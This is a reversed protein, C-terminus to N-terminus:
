AATTKPPKPSIPERAPGPLDIVQFTQEQDIYEWFHEYSHDMLRSRLIAFAYQGVCAAFIANENKKRLKEIAATLRGAAASITEGEPPEIALPDNRWQRYAKGFREELESLMMGQWLGLNVESLTQVPRPRLHLNHSILSATQKTSQEPGNRILTPALKVIEQSMEVAQRHGIESLPLSMNGALRGQAKWDTQAAAILILKAM